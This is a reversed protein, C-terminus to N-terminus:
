ETHVGKATECPDEGFQMVTGEWEADRELEAKLVIADQIGAMRFEVFRHGYRDTGTWVKEVQLTRRTGQAIKGLAATSWENGIKLVRLVRTDGREIM